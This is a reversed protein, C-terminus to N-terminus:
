GRRELEKLRRDIDTLHKELERAQERIADRVITEALEKANGKTIYTPGNENKKFM